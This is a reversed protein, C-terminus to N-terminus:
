PPRIFVKNSEKNTTEVNTAQPLFFSTDELAFAEAELGIVTETCYAVSM